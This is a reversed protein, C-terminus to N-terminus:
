VLEFEKCFELSQETELDVGLHPATPYGNACAGREEVLHVCDECTFCLRFQKAEDRLKPDISTRM